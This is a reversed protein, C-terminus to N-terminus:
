TSRDISLRDRLKIFRPNGHLQELDSDQDLQDLDDFGADVATTLWDLAPEVDGARTLSCAANFADTPRSARHFLHIQFRAAEAFAGAQYAADDLRALAELSIGSGPGSTRGDQADVLDAAETFRSTATVAAVWRPEVLPSPSHELAQTLHPLAAFPQGQDHLLSGILAPDPPTGPPMADLAERTGAPDGLQLRAVALAKLAHARLADDQAQDHLSEALAALEQWRGEQATEELRALNAEPDHAEATWAGAAASGAAGRSQEAQLSRWNIAALYVCLITLWLQGAKVLLLALVVTVALSIWRAVVRGRPGFVMEALSTAINGGDLPLVPLLNLVGWGLNVWVLDSLAAGALTGPAPQVARLLVLCLGGAVIGTLPGAASIVLHRLPPLPGARRWRTVGGMAVLEIEPRYGFAICTVAHGLEHLLVGLFAAVVWIAAAAMPRDIGGILLVTLFFWPQIRVPIGFISLQLRM